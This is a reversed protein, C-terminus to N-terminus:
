SCDSCFIGAPYRALRVQGAVPVGEYRTRSCTTDFEDRSCHTGAIRSFGRSSSVPLERSEPAMPKATPNTTGIRINGIADLAVDDPEATGDRLELTRKISSRSTLHRARRHEGQRGAPSTVEKQTL